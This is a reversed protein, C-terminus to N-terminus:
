ASTLPTPNEKEATSLKEDIFSSVTSTHKKKMDKDYYFTLVKQSITRNTQPATGFLRDWWATSIGYCSDPEKCHHVVHYRVLRPFIKKAWRQHLFYHMMVFWFIGTGIGALVMLYPSLWVSLWVLAACLLIMMLRQMGSVKIETPHTHHHQHRQVLSNDKNVGKAHNWFRHLIYEAFTWVFWGTFFLLYPTVSSFVTACEIIVYVMPLLM